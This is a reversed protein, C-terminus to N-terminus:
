RVISGLSFFLRNRGGEGVSAGLGVSLDAGNVAVRDVSDSASPPCVTAATEQRLSPVTQSVPVAVATVTRVVRSCGDIM